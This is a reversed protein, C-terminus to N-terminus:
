LGAETDTIIEKHADIVVDGETSVNITTCASASLLLAALLILTKM